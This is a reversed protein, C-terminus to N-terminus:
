RCRPARQSWGYRPRERERERQRDRRYALKWNKGQPVYGMVQLESTCVFCGCFFFGHLKESQSQRQSDACGGVREGSADRLVGFDLVELSLGETVVVERAFGFSMGVGDNHQVAKACRVVLIEVKKFVVQFELAEACEGGGIAGVVAEREDAAEIVNVCGRLEDGVEYLLDLLLGTSGLYVEYAVGLTGELREVSGLEVANSGDHVVNDRNGRRSM